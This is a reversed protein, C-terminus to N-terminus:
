PMINGTNHSDKTFSNALTIYRAHSNPDQKYIVKCKQAFATSFLFLTKPENWHFFKPILLVKSITTRNERHFIDTGNVPKVLNKGNWVKWLWKKPLITAGEKTGELLKYLHGTLWPSAGSRWINIFCLQTIYALPLYFKNFFVNLKELTRQANRNNGAYSELILCPRENNEKWLQHQLHQGKTYGVQFRLQYSLSTYGVQFHLQYRLSSYFGPFIPLNRHEMVTWLCTQLCPWLSLRRQFFYSLMEHLNQTMEDTTSLTYSLPSLSGWLLFFYLIVVVLSSVDFAGSLEIFFEGRTHCLICSYSRNACHFAIQLYIVVVWYPIVTSMLRILFGRWLWQSSFYATFM